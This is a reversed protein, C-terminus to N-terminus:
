GQWVNFNLNPRVCNVMEPSLELIIVHKVSNKTFYFYYLDSDRNVFWNHKKVDRMTIYRQFSAHNVHGASEVTGLQLSTMLRRRSNGFVKAVDLDSKGGGIPTYTYDYEVRLKDKNRWILFASGGFVLVIALAMWNFGNEGMISYFSFVAIIGFFVISLWCLSYLLSNLGQNRKRATEEFSKAGREM